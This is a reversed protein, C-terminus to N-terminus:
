FYTQFIGKVDLRDKSGWARLYCDAAVVEGMDPHYMVPTIITKKSGTDCFLRQRFGGVTVQVWKSRKKKREQGTNIMYTRSESVADKKIGPWHVKVKRTELRYLSQEAEEEEESM